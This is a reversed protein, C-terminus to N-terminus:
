PEEHAPLRKRFAVETDDLKRALKKSNGAILALGFAMTLGGPGPLVMMSLGAVVAIGGLATEIARVHPQEDKRRDAYNEFREGPRDGMFHKWERKLKDLM